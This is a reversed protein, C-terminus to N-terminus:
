CGQKGARYDTEPGQTPSLVPNNISTSFPFPQIPTQDPTIQTINPSDPTIPTITPYTATENNPM